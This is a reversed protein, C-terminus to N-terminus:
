IHEIIELSKMHKPYICLCMHFYSFNCVTRTLLIRRIIRSVRLRGTHTCASKSSDFCSSRERGGTCVIKRDGRRYLLWYFNHPSGRNRHRGGNVVYVIQFDHSGYTCLDHPLSSPRAEARSDLKGRYREERKWTHLSM